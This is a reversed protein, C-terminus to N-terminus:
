LLVKTMAFLVTCIQATQQFGAPGDSSIATPSSGISSFSSSPNLLKRDASSQSLLSDFKGFSTRSCILALEQMSGQCRTLEPCSGGGSTVADSTAVGADILVPDKM